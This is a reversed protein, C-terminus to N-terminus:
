YFQKIIEEINPDSISIDEIDYNSILQSFIDQLIDKKNPIEFEIFSDNKNLININKMHSIDKNWNFKVKLKKTNIYKKKLDKITWDFLIKGHNIIIVRDCISEVDQLDHSTLFITTNEEKNIKNIINRLNQKAIMDLWITPEDLFVIKPNHILSAVIECKMRQGLSLKRVPKNIIDVIDFVKVLHKIRSNLKDKPIEFMSWFLLFTDFPTLHYWLKSVQGFVAWINYVLKKRDKTPKLWLVQIDWSTNHLIWTLM